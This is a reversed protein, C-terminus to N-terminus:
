RTRTLKFVMLFWIKGFLISDLKELDIAVLNIGHLQACAVARSCM